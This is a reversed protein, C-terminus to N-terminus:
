GETTTESGDKPSNRKEYDTGTFRARGKEENRVTNKKSSDREM